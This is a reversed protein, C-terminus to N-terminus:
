FRSLFFPNTNYIASIECFFGVYTGDSQSFAPLIKLLPFLCNLSRWLRDLAPELFAKCTLALGLLNGKSTLVDEPASDHDYALYECVEDLIDPNSHFPLRSPKSTTPVDNADEQVQVDMQDTINGFCLLL